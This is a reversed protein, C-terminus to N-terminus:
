FGRALYDFTRAVITGSSNKFTIEFGTTTINEIIFFDGTAMNQATVAIKPVSLFADNYTVSLKSTSSTETDTDIKAYTLASASLASINIQHTTDGSSTNLKFKFGRANYNGITFDKFATFTPSASAPDDNTTAIQLNALVDDFDNTDIAFWDDVNDSRDDWFDTTDDSTFTIASTLRANTVAGLDIVNAFEYSGSVDLGGIADILPFDDVNGTVSDWLTDGEFKLVNDAVIMNTKTGSFSPNETLTQRNELQFSDPSVTNVVTTANVSKRGTSDVAKILYTGTLLPLQVGNSIGSVSDGIKVSNQWVAGSTLTNHRIEFTGGIKVDLDTTPTWTLTATIGDARLNLNTVDSPDATLGYIRQTFSSYESAVKATNVARVRFEYLDPEIDFFTFTTGLSAGARVFASASTKKFEVDYREINIGLSEWNPNSTALWNLDAKAKVGSGATTSFLSETVSQLAPTNVPPLISLGKVKQNITAFNSFVGKTNKARIMIKYLGKELDDVTFVTSNSVGKLIYNEKDFGTVQDYYNLKFVSIEYSDVFTSTPATWSINIRNFVSENAFILDEKIEINTPKGVTSLDPLDTNPATDEASITGFNYVDDDYEQAVIDVEDNNKLNMSQVRFRKGANSNLTEFGLSALKVFIVDGVEARLGVITTTFKLVMSQRSQKMKITAIMRAREKDTTFPLEIARELVLNNDATRFTGSEIVAFDGQFDRQHNFFGARVRNAKNSKNGLSVDYNGVINGEDFTQVATGTTDILLKYKGNTFILSGRCSTLIKQVNEFASANTDLYGNCTYQPVSVGGLTVSTDCANAATTFSTTNIDNISIGRGYTTNTLYDLLVNAPNNSYRTVFQSGAVWTNSGADVSYVFRRDQVKKGKIDCTIQPINRFIDQDAELRVYIYALGSLKDSSTWKGGSENILDQDAAQDSRGLHKNIRVVNKFKTKLDGAMIYGIDAEVTSVTQTFTRTETEFVPEDNLYVQEISDIEGECLVLVIHLYENNAGTVQYYVPTGGIRREGYIVPIAATSSPTNSLAKAGTSELTSPLSPMKNGIYAATVATAVVVTTIGIALATTYAMATVGVSAGVASGISVFFPAAAPMTFLAPAVLAVLILFIYKFYKM